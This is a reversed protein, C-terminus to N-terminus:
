YSIAFRTNGIKDATIAVAHSCIGLPREVQRHSPWRTDFKQDTPVAYSSYVAGEEIGVDNQPTIVLPNAYGRTELWIAALVLRGGIFVPVFRLEPIYVVENWMFLM